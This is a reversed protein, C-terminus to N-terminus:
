TRVRSMASNVFSDSSCIAGPALASRAELWGIKPVKAPQQADALHVSALALGVLLVVITKKGMGAQKSRNM